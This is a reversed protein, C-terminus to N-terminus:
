EIQIPACPFVSVRTGRGYRNQLEEVAEEWSELLETEDEPFIHNIDRRGLNPSVLLLRKEFPKTRPFIKKLWSEEPPVWLRGGKQYLAHYGRGESCAAILVTTGGEFSPQGMMWLAKVIQFMETDLPYANTVTIEARDPMETKYVERAFKVGERHAKVPDGVFVGVIRRRSNLVANIVVDLGSMRAAEEIDARNENKEIVGHGSGPIDRHNAEITEIGVVGPLIIKGGGGFGAGGHPYIGGVGIKLDAEAVVRNLYVPTGRSTEGLYKLDDYPNHSFIEFRSIVEEGLKKLLDERTQPRHAATAVVIKIHDEDLGGAELEDIIYPMLQSVPTPRSIDDVILVADKRKCATESIRKAGIPTRFALQIEEEGLPEADRPQALKVRWKDPFELPIEHDGYWSAYPVKLKLMFGQGSTIRMLAKERLRM